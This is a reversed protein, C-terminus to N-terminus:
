NTKLKTSDEETPNQAWDKAIGVAEKYLDADCAHFVRSLVRAQDRRKTEGTKVAIGRGYVRASNITGGIMRAYHAMPVGYIAAQLYGHQKMTFRGLFAAVESESVVRESGNQAVDGQGAGSGVGGTLAAIAVRQREITLLAEELRSRLNKEDESM